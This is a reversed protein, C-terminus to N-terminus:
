RHLPTPLGGGHAQALGAADADAAIRDLAGLMDVHQLHEQGIRFCFDMM